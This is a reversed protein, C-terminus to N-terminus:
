DCRDVLTSAYDPFSRGSIADVLANRMNDRELHSEYTPTGHHGRHDTDPNTRSRSWGRRMEDADDGGGGGGVAGQVCAISSLMLMERDVVINSYDDEQMLQRLGIELTEM